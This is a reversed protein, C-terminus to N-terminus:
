VILGSFQLWFLSSILSRATDLLHRTNKSFEAKTDEPQKNGISWILLSFIVISITVFLFVLSSM